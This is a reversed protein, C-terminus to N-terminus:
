VALAAVGREAVASRQTPTWLARETHRLAIGYFGLADRGAPDIVAANLVMWAGARPGDGEVLLFGIAARMEAYREAAFIATAEDDGSYLGEVARHRLVASGPWFELRDRDSKLLGGLTRGVRTGSQSLAYDKLQAKITAADASM